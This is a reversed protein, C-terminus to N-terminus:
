RRLTSNPYRQLHCTNWTPKRYGGLHVNTCWYPLRATLTCHPHPRDSVHTPSLHSEEQSNTPIPTIRASISAANGWLQTARIEDGVIGLSFYVSFVFTVILTTFPSNAWDYLAWSVLGRTTKPKADTM